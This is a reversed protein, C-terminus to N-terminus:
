AAEVCFLCYIKLMSVAEGVRVFCFFGTIDNELFILRKQFLIGYWRNSLAISMNM